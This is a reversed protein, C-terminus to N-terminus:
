TRMCVCKDRSVRKHEVAKLGVHQSDLKVKTAPGNHTLIFFLISSLMICDFGSIKMDKQYFVLIRAKFISCKCM